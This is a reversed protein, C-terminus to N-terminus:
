QRRGDRAGAHELGLGKPMVHLTEVPVVALQVHLVNGIRGGPIEEAVVDRQQVARILLDLLGIVEAPPSEALVELPRRLTEDDGLKKGRDTPGALVVRDVAGRAMVKVFTAPQVVRPEEVVVREEPEALSAADAAVAEPGGVGEPRSKQHGAVVAQNPLQEGIEDGVVLRPLLVCRSALPRKQCISSRSPISTEIPPPM